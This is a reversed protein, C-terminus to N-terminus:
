DRGAQRERQSGAPVLLVVDDRRLRLVLAHQVRAAYQLRVAEAHRVQRHPGVAEDVHRLQLRRDGRLRREDRDHADVVLDAHQLRERLDAREAPALADEEV